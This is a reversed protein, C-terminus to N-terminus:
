RGGCRSDALRPSNYLAPLLNSFTYICPKEICELGLNRFSITLPSFSTTFGGHKTQRLFSVSICANTCFPVTLGRARHCALQLDHLRAKNIRAHHCPFQASDDKVLFTVQPPSPHQYFTLM